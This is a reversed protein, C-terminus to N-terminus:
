VVGITDPDVVVASVAVNENCTVFVVVGEDSAVVAVLFAIFVVHVVIVVVVICVVTVVEITNLVAVSLKEYWPVEEDSIGQVVLQLWRTM